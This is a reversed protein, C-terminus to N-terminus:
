FVELYTSTVVHERHRLANVAQSELTHLVQRRTFSALHCPHTTLPKDRIVALFTHKFEYVIEGGRKLLKLLKSERGVFHGLIPM